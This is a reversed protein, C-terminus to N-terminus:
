NSLMETGWNRIFHRYCHRGLLNNYPVVSHSNRICISHHRARLLHSDTHASIPSPDWFEKSRPLPLSPSRPAQAPFCDQRWYKREDLLDNQASGAQDGSWTGGKAFLSRQALPGDPGKWGLCDPKKPPRTRLSAQCQGEALFEHSRFPRKTM